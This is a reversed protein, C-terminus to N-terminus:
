FVFHTLESDLYWLVAGLIILLIMVMLFLFFNSVRKKHSYHPRVNPISSISNGRKLSNVRFLRIPARLGKFKKIGLHKYIVENKNMTSFVTESFIIQGPKAADEIRSTANVADGYVNNNRIVVEGAHIAIKIKPTLRNRKREELFINQLEISCLLADTSSRFTVLFADGIKNVVNGSYKAFIPLSLGDFVDHFKNFRDRDLFTTTRTYGAVDVFMITLIETRYEKPM